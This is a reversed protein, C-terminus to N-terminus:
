FALEVQLRVRYMDDDIDHDVYTIDSQVKLNHGVIYRSMGLTMESYDDSWNNNEPKIGTYRAAFELNNNFLYGVQVNTGTGTQYFTGDLLVASEDTKKDAYEFMTSFGQYKFMADVFVTNQNRSESLFDGKFGNKRTTSNNQDYTVGIALKPSKERKLDSGFYDGKSSFEGFPLLEVRGTFEYGGINSKTFNRGEGMTVAGAEKVVFDGLKQKGRLQVGTGRDINYKSNLQSRDVFQLAQSSIVRERNGPLKTQGFWLQWNPAFKYKLVADLVISAAANSEPAIKGNDRNSVALEVKYEVKPNYVFGNFKLRARRIMVNDNWEDTGLNMEGNYLTQFRMSAKMYFSSDKAMIKIGKGFTNNSLDQAHIANVVTFVIVSVVLTIKKM